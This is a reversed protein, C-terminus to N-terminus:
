HKRKLCEYTVQQYNTIKQQCFMRSVILNHCDTKGNCLQDAVGQGSAARLVCDDEEYECHGESSKGYFDDIIRIVEGNNCEFNIIEGFCASATTYKGKKVVNHTQRLRKMADTESNIGSEKVDTTTASRENTLERSEKQRNRITESIRADREGLKRGEPTRRKDNSSLRSVRSQIEREEFVRLGHNTSLRDRSNSEREEPMTRTKYTRSARTRKRGEDDDMWRQEDNPVRDDRNHRDVREARRLPRDTQVSNRLRGPRREAVQVDNPPDRRRSMGNLQGNYSDSDVETEHEAHTTEYAQSERQSRRTNTPRMEEDYSKALHRNQHGIRQRQNEMNRVPSRSFEERRPDVETVLMGRQHPPHRRDERHANTSAFDHRPALRPSNNSSSLM